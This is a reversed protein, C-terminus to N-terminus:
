SIRAVHQHRAPPSHPSAPPDSASAAQGRELELEGIRACQGPLHSRFADREGKPQKSMLVVLTEPPSSVPRLRFHSDREDM